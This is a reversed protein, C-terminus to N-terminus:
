RIVTQNTITILIKKHCHLCKIFSPSNNFIFGFGAEIGTKPNERSNVLKEKKAKALVDVYALKTVKSGAMDILTFKIEYRGAVENDFNGQDIIVLDVLNPGDERTM